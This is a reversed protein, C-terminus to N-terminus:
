LYVHPAFGQIATHIQFHQGPPRGAKSTGIQGVHDIFCGDQRGPSVLAPYPHLLHFFGDVPNNGTRFSLAPHDTFPFPAQHGVMLRPMGDQAVNKGVGIRDVLNRYNGPPPGTTVGETQGLFVAIVHGARFEQVPNGLQQAAPHGFFQDEILDTGPGLIVQLPRRGQHPLHDHFVPHTFFETGQGKAMLLFLDKQPPIDGPVPVVTFLHRRGNVLFHAANDILAVILCGAEKLFVPIFKIEQGLGEQLLFGQM